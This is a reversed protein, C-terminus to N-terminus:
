MGLSKRAGDLVDVDIKTLGRENAFKEIGAKALTDRLEEAVSRALEAPKAAHFFVLAPKSPAGWFLGHM